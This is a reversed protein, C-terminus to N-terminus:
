RRSTGSRSWCGPRVMWSGRRFDPTGPRWGRVLRELEPRLPGDGVLVLSTEPLEPAVRSFAHVLTPLGKKEVFRGVFLVNPPREEAPVPVEYREIPIGPYHVTIRDPPVGRAELKGALFRTYALFRTAEAALSDFHIWYNLWAVPLAHFRPLRSVDYGYVSVILPRGLKRAFPLAYAGDVGFHAHILDPQFDGLRRELLRSHRFAAYAVEAVREIAGDRGVDADRIATAPFPFRDAHIRHRCFVHAEYRELAQLNNLIWVESPQLFTNRFVAVRKRM